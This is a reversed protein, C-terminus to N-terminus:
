VREGQAAKWCAESMNRLCNEMGELDQKAWCKIAESQIARGYSFSLPPLRTYHSTPPAANVLANAAALFDTAVNPPLGGKCSSLVLILFIDM